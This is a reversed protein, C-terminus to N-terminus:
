AHNIMAHRDGRKVQVDAAREALFIDPADFRRHFIQMRNMAERRVLQRQFLRAATEFVQLINIQLRVQSFQITQTLDGAQATVLLNKGCDMICLM